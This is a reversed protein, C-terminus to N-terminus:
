NLSDSIESFKRVRLTVSLPHDEGYDIILAAGNHKSIKLAISEALVGTEPSVEITDGLNGAIEWIM